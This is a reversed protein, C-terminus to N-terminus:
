RPIQVEKGAGASFLPDTSPDLVGELRKGSAITNQTRTLTVVAPKGATVKWDYSIEEADPYPMPNDEPAAASLTKYSVIHTFATDLTSGSGHLVYLQNAHEGTTLLCGRCKKKEFPQITDRLWSLVVMGEDVGDGDLDRAELSV